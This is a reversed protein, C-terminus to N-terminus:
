PTSVYDHPPDEKPNGQLTLTLVLWIYRLVFFTEDGFPGCNNLAESEGHLEEDPVAGGRGGAHEFAYRQQRWEDLRSSCLGVVGGAVSSGRGM